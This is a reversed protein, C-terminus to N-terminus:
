NQNYQTLYSRLSYLYRDRYEDQNLGHTSMSYKLIAGVLTNHVFECRSRIEFPSVGPYLKSMPVSLRQIAREITATNIEKFDLRIASYYYLLLMCHLYAKNKQFFIFNSLAIHVIQEQAPWDSKEIEISNYGEDLISLIASKFIHKKKPFYKAVLSRSVRAHKAIETVSTKEIGLKSVCEAVAHLISKATRQGKSLEPHTMVLNYNM